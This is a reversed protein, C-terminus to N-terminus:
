WPCSYSESPVCLKMQSNFYWNESCSLVVNQGGFCFNYKNCDGQYEFQSGSAANVCSTGDKVSPWPPWTYSTIAPLISTAENESDPCQNDASFVCQLLTENFITNAPCYAAFPIPYDCVIFRKCDNPYALRTGLPLGCCVNQTNPNLTTTPIETPTTLTQTTKTVTSSPAATTTTPVKTTTSPIDTTTAPITTTTIKISCNAEDPPMCQKLDANFELGVPCDYGVPIPEQCVVYKSCNNPYPFLTGLPQNYCPGMPSETTTTEITTSETTTTIIPTTTTAIDERCATSSTQQDCNETEKNYYTGPQCKAYVPQENICIIYQSCDEPYPLITGTTKNACISPTAVTTTVLETTTTETTTPTPTTPITTDITTIIPTTTTAIDERCATSSTQHDCNETEKNYYTGPQCKAYVPQENICIIYQSCDEPYPLITGTTKNACISPTAVTTTVLETTTTETTTPTPTTPITTDITTIIPTTTTAIDERCATSSTQHDCNETEKNYYTGPQCKAYVPQENICIIYQSCDEPYPLITGTTKNACVSPTAVTTTALETTTTLLTTSTAATTETTTPPPTTPITTDIATTTEYGERCATPSTQFDCNETEKNYYTGPQCLAYIVQGKVCIIYQSCDNPYPFTTGTAENECINPSATSSDTTTTAESSTPTTITSSTVTTATTTSFTSTTTIPTTVTSSVKTSTTSESKCATSSTKSDCNGTQINYYTGPMCKAPYPQGNLCYIFESCDNRNPLTSFDPLNDCSDAPPTTPVIPTTKISCNADEADTCTQMVANFELNDDCAYAVPIPSECVIYKTCNEPYPILTGPTQDACVKVQQPPPKTPQPTTTTVEQRCANADASVECNGLISNYFENGNCVEYMYINNGTCRIYFRCDETYPFTTNPSQGECINNTPNSTTSSITSTTTSPTTTPQGCSTNGEVDCKKQQENFYWNNECEFAVPAPYVCMIYKKCNDPYPILEGNTNNGCVSQTVIPTTTPIAPTTSIVWEKCADPSADVECNGAAPVYYSGTACEMLTPLDHNCIVFQSCNDYVPFTSLNSAGECVNTSTTTQTTSSTTPKITTPETWDECATPSVDPGCFTTDPNYYNNNPCDLILYSGSGMCMIYKACNSELPYTTGESEKECLKAPSSTTTIIPTTTTPESCATPSVEPGCDKTSPNYWNNFPCSLIESTGNGWCYYYFQCNSTYPYTTGNIQDICLEYVPTTTTPLVTTTTEKYCIVDQPEDCILLEPNFLWGNPCERLELEGALCEIFQACNGAYPYLIPSTIDETGACMSPNLDPPLTPPITTTVTTLEITTSSTTTTVTPATPYPTENCEMTASTDCIGLMVNFIKGPKCYELVACEDACRIYATCNYEYRYYIDHSNHDCFDDNVGYIPTCVFPTTPTIIETTAPTTTETVETTITTPMPLEECKATDPTDCISLYANFVKDPPCYNLVPCSQTCNIYANCNYPYRFLTGDEYQECSTDSIGIPATCPESTPTYTPLTSDPTTVTVDGGGSWQCDVNPPYDCNKIENNFWLGGPCDKVTPYECNCVLFKSCNGPYPVLEGFPQNACAQKNQPREENDICTRLTTEQINFTPPSVTCANETDLVCSRKVASFVKGVSCSRVIPYQSLCYIYYSCSIPIPHVAGDPESLCVTNSVTILADVAVNNVSLTVLTFVALFLYYDKWIDKM